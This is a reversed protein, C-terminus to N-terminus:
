AFNHKIRKSVYVFSTFCCFTGVVMTRHRITHTIPLVFGVLRRKKSATDTLVIGVKSKPYGWFASRRFQPIASKQMFSYVALRLAM